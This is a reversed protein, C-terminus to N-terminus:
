DGTRLLEEWQRCDGKFGLSEAVRFTSILCAKFAFVRFRDIQSVSKQRLFDSSEDRVEKAKPCNNPVLNSAVRSNRARERIALGKNDIPLPPIQVWPSM